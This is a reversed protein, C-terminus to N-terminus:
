LSRKRGLYITTRKGDKPEVSTGGFWPFVPIFGFGKAKSMDYYKIEEDYQDGLYITSRVGKKRYHWHVEWKSDEPMYRFVLMSEKKSVRYGEPGIMTALSKRGSIKLLDEQDYNNEKIIYESEPSRFQVAIYGRSKPIFWFWNWIAKLSPFHTGDVFAVEHLKM